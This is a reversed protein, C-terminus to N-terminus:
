RVELANYTADLSAIKEDFLKKEADTLPLEIVKKFGSGGVMCPVGM